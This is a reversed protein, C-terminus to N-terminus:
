AISLPPAREGLCAFAFHPLAVVRRRSRRAASEAPSQAERSVFTRILVLVRVTAGALACVGRALAFVIGGCAVAHAALSFIVPGGLWLAGGLDHGYVAVQEITEMAYLATMQLAFALPLLRM